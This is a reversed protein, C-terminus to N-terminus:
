SRSANLADIPQLRSARIAPISGALVALIVSFAYAGLLLRPTVQFLASGNASTAHNIFLVLIEGFLIGILGGLLGIAAAELIFDFLIRSDSAGIAKRIGIERTRELVAMVMTNVVSLSGVLLAILAAGFIITNFLRTSEQIQQKLVAPDIATVGPVAASIRKALLSPDSNAVPFVTIQSAVQQFPAGSAAHYLLQADEFTVLAATDNITFDKVHIGVVTFTSGNVIISDGVKAGIQRQLDEGLVTAGTEGQVLVRGSQVRLPQPNDGEAQVERGIVVNSQGLAGEKKSLDAYLMVIQPYAAKVGSVGKIAQLRDLSIPQPLRFLDSGTSADRVTVRSGYYAIGGGVVNQIQEALAGVVVLAMIGIAIGLATLLSRSPRRAISRIVDM